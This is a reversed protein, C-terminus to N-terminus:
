IHTMCFGVMEFLIHVDIKKEEVLEKQWYTHM